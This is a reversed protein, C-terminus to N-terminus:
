GRSQPKGGPGQGQPAKRRAEGTQPGGSTPGRSPDTGDRRGRADQEMTWVVVYETHSAPPGM